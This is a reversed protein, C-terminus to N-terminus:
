RQSRVGGNEASAFHVQINIGPGTEIRGLDTRRATRRDEQLDGARDRQRPYETRTHLRKFIVFVIRAHEPAIGIGNDTVSFIWEKGNKQASIRIMPPESGRFKIANGILNQFLQVLQSGDAIVLPLTLTSRDHRRKRSHGGGSEEAGGGSGCQLRYEALAVGQRGVRSFALLDQVLKQM